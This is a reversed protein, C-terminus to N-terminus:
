AKLDFNEKLCTANDEELYLFRLLCSVIISFVVSICIKVLCSASFIHLVDEISRGRSFCLISFVFSFAIEGPLTSCLYQFFISKGQYVGKKMRSMIWNMTRFGVFTALVSYLIMIPSEYMITAIQTGELHCVKVASNGLIVFLLQCYMKYYFFKEAEFSSFLYNMTDVIFFGVCFFVVSYNLTFYYEGITIKVFFSNFLMSLIEVTVFSIILFTRINDKYSM